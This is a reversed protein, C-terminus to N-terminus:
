RTRGPKSMSALYDILPRIRDPMVAESIITTHTRSGTSVSIRYEFRDPGPTVPKIEPHLNFFDADKVLEELKSAEDASLDASNV